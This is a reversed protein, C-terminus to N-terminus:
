FPLKCTIINSLAVRAEDDNLEVGTNLFVTAKLADLQRRTDEKEQSERIANKTEMDGLKMYLNLLSFMTESELRLKFQKFFAKTTLKGHKIDEFAEFISEPDDGNNSSEIFDAYDFSSHVEKFDYRHKSNDDMHCLYRKAGVPNSSKNIFTKALGFLRAISDIDRANKYYLYIHWHKAKPKGNEEDKDHLVYAWESPGSENIAEIIKKEDLHEINSNFFWGRSRLQKQKEQKPEEKKEESPKDVAEKIDM